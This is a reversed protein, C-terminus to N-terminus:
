SDDAPVEISDDSVESDDDSNDEVDEDDADLVEDEREVGEEEEADTARQPPSGPVPDDFGRASPAPVSMTRPRKLSAARRAAGSRVLSASARFETDCKPCRIPHRQLDYFSAECNGCRRKIGWEAKSM